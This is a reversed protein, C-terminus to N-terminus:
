AEQSCEWQYFGSNCPLCASHLNQAGARSAPLGSPLHRHQHCFCGDSATQRNWHRKGQATNQRFSHRREEGGGWCRQKKDWSWQKRESEATEAVDKNEQAKTPKNTQKEGNLGIKKNGTSHPKHSRLDWVKSWVRTGATSTPLGLWQVVLSIRLRIM